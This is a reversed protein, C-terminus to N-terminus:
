ASPLQRSALWQNRHRFTQRIAGQEAASLDPHWISFILVVRESESRNRAEHLYSDDFALLKGRRTQRAEGAVTM